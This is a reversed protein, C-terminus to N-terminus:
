KVKESYRLYIFRYVLFAIVSGVLGGVFVDSLYHVGLYIRSYAILMGIFLLPFILKPYGKRLVLYSFTIIAFINAAHSSVFGYDGGKYYEGPKILYYHLKETLLLNHSPRYRLFVNKFLHVSTLDTLAITLGILGLFLFLQNRTLTNYALYLLIVYLPIWTIRASIWWMLEDMFPSNWSNITLVISRDIEELFEIM